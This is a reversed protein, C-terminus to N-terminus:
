AALPRITHAQQTALVQKRQSIILAEIAEVSGLRHGPYWAAEAAKRPSLADREARAQVLILAAASIAEKRTTM